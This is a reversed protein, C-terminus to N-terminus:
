TKNTCTTDLKEKTKANNVMGLAKRATEFDARESGYVLATGVTEATPLLKNGVDSIKGLTNSVKRGIQLATDRVRTCFQHIKDPTLKQGLQQMTTRIKRVTFVM